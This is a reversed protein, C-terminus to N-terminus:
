IIIKRRWNVSYRFGLRLGNSGVRGLYILIKFELVRVFYLFMVVSFFIFVDLVLRIVM